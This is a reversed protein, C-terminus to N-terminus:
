RDIYVNKFFYKFITDITITGTLFIKKFTCPDNLRNLPFKGIFNKAHSILEFGIKEM